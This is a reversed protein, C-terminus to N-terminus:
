PRISPRSLTSPAHCMSVPDGVSLAISTSDAQVAGRLVRVREQGQAQVQSPRCPRQRKEDCFQDYDDGRSCKHDM